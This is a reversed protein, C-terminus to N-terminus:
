QPEFHRLPLETLALITCTNTLSHCFSYSLPPMAIFCANRLRTEIHLKSARRLKVSGHEQKAAFYPYIQTSSM